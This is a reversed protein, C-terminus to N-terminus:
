TPGVGDQKGRKRKRKKRLIAAPSGDTTASPGGGAGGQELGSGKLIDAATMAAERCRLWEEGSSSSSSSCRRKKRVMSPLSEPKESNEPLSSSFLRFGDRPPEAGEQEKEITGPPRDWLTVSRDLIATLKKAVHAKFGASTQLENAYEENPRAISPSPVGRPPVWAAERARQLAEADDEDSSGGSSGNGAGNKKGAAAMKLLAM